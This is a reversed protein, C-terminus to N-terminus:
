LAVRYAPVSGRFGKLQLEVQEAELRGEMVHMARGDILIEGWDAEDGLRSAMNVVAGLPTYDLRDEFGVTGLTAYGFAIGMGYGLEFGRRAWRECLEQMPERLSLAMAIAQGAPDDCPIPDNFYALIGDGQFSGLTAEYERIRRGVVEYYEQLVELLEEPESSNSFSTFGRLDCFVVAIQRRHPALSEASLVADAVQPALFKRLRGLGEIEGVQAAVREELTRNLEALQDRAVEAEAALRHVEQNAEREAQALRMVKGLIAGLEILVIAAFAIVPVWRSFWHDPDDALLAVLYSTSGAAVCLTAWRMPVWVAVVATCAPVIAASPGDETIGIWVGVMVAVTVLTGFLLPRGLRKARAVGFIAILAGVAVLALLVFTSRRDEQQSVIIAPLGICVGILGFRALATVMTRLYDAEPVLVEILAPGRWWRRVAAGWSEGGAM